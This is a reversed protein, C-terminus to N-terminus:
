AQRELERLSIEPLGERDLPQGARLTASGLEGQVEVGEPAAAGLAAYAAALAADDAQAVEPLPPPGDAELLTSTRFADAEADPDVQEREIIAVALKSRLTALGVPSWNLVMAEFQELARRMMPLPMEQLAQLGRKRLAREVMALHRMAQRTEPQEDLLERLQRGILEVLEREREAEREQPTGAAAEAGRPQLQLSLGQSGRRLVLDSKFFATAARQLPQFLRNLPNM